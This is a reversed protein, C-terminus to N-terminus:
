SRPVVRHCFRVADRACTMIGGAYGSGEGLLYLGPTSISQCQEDRLMRVPSSTRSEIGILVGQEIFGPMARDWHQLAAKLPALAMGPLVHALDASVVGPQYSTEPLTASATGGILDTARQAPAIFDGGGAQYARQEYERQFAIVDEVNGDLSFCVLGNHSKNM